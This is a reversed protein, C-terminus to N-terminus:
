MGAGVLGSGRWFSMTEHYTTWAVYTGVGCELSACRISDPGKAHPWVTGLRTRVEFPEDFNSSRTEQERGRQGDPACEAATPEPTAVLPGAVKNAARVNDNRAVYEEQKDLRHASAERHLWLHAAFPSRQVNGM